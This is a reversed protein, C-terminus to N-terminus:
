KETPVLSKEAERSYERQFISYDSVVKEELRRERRERWLSYSAEERGKNLYNWCGEYAEEEATYLNHAWGSFLQTKQSM